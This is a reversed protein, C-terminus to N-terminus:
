LCQRRNVEHDLPDWQEDYYLADLRTVRVNLRARTRPTLLSKGSGGCAYRASSTIGVTARRNRAVLLSSTVTNLHDKTTLEDDSAPTLGTRTATLLGPLLSAAEHPFRHPRLGTDFARSPPAVSRDTANRSAQPTTLPGARNRTPHLSHRAGSYLTFAM